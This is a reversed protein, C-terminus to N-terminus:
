PKSNDSLPYRRLAIDPREIYGRLKARLMNFAFQSEPSDKLDRYASSDVLGQLAAIRDSSAPHTQAFPDQRQSSLIEQNEFRKFVRLMGLGSQHTANLYRIGAQDASSEQTRSFALFTRQAIQQGGMLIASGADGAGAAIAAVGIVM